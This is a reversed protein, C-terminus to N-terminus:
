ALRRASEVAIRARRAAERLAPPGDITRWLVIAFLYAGIASLSGGIALIATGFAGGVGREMFGCVM